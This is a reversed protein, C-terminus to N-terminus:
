EYRLADVPNATAARIAQWSVTLLAIALALVGALVFIWWSFNIRYAFNQLWRNMAYWAVPWAVVNAILVLIIFEKCLLGVVQRVSAGLVKRIGIEKTRREASFAALGFLGLCAIFVALAAFWGFIQGLRLESRYAKDMEDDLFSYELSHDPAFEQWVQRLHGLGETIQGSRLRVFITSYSLPNFSIALPLIPKHFPSFHFDKVVGIIRDRTHPMIQGIPDTMGLVAVTKENVVVAQEPFPPGMGPQYQSWDIIHKESIDRGALLELGLTELYDYGMAMGYIRIRESMERDTFSRSVYGEQGPISGSTVNTISPYALLAAKFADFGEEIAGDRNSVVVVEDGRVNLRTVRIYNMQWYIVVSALILIISAAFQFVVLGQRFAKGGAPGSWGGQLARVPGHTSMVLAPYSGSVLGVMVAIGIFPLIRAPFRALSLALRKGTIANFSPLVLETLALALLLALLSMVVSEGLFQLVIQRRRAGFTKRVGVERVRHISRATALNMYNILALLLILFAISSFLYIYRIDSGTDFGGTANSRLHIDTITELQFEKGLSSRESM